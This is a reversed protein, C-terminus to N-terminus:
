LKWVKMNSFAVDTPTQSGGTISAAYLGIDGGTKIQVDNVQTVLKQNVFIYFTTGSAIVALTNTPQYPASSIPLSIPTGESTVHNGQCSNTEVTCVVFAINGTNDLSLRYFTVMSQNTQDARFIIGGADGSVIKMSVQYVFNIYSHGQLMCPNYSGSLSGPNVKSHYLKDPELICSSGGTTSEEIWKNGGTGDMPDNLTPTGLKDYFAQPDTIPTATPTSGPTVTVVPTGNSIRTAVPSRSTLSNSGKKPSIFFVSVAVVSVILILAVLAPLV